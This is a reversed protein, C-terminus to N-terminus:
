NKHDVKGDITTLPGKNFLKFFHMTKRIPIMLTTMFAALIVNLYCPRIVMRFELTLCLPDFYMAKGIFKGGM